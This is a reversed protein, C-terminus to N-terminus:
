AEGRPYAQLPRDAVAGLGRRRLAAASSASRRARAGPKGFLRAGVATGPLPPAPASPSARLAGDDRVPRRTSAGTPSRALARGSGRWQARVHRPLLQGRRLQRRCLAPAGRRRRGGFRDDWPQPEIDPDPRRVKPVGLATGLSEPGAGFPAHRGRRKRPAKSRDCRATGISPPRQASREWPGRM